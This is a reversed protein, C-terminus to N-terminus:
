ATNTVLKAMAMLVTLISSTNVRFKLEGGNKLFVAKEEM